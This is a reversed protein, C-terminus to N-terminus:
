VDDIWTNFKPVWNAVKTNYQYHEGIHPYIEETRRLEGKGDCFNLFEDWVTPEYEPRRSEIWELLEEIIPISVGNHNVHIWELVDAAFHLLKVMFYTRELEITIFQKKFTTNLISCINRFQSHHLEYPLQAIFFHPLPSRVFAYEKDPTWRACFCYYYTTGRLSDQSVGIDIVQPEANAKIWFNPDNFTNEITTTMRRLINYAFSPILMYKFSQEWCGYYENEPKWRDLTSYYYRGLAITLGRVGHDARSQLAVIHRQNKTTSWYGLMHLPFRVGLLANYPSLCNKTFYTENPYKLKLTGQSRLMYTNWKAWNERAYARLLKSSHMRERVTESIPFRLTPRYEIDFGLPYRRLGQHTQTDTIAHDIRYKHRDKLKM